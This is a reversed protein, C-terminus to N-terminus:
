VPGYSSFLSRRPPCVAGKAVGLWGGSQTTGHLVGAVVQGLHQLGAAVPLVVPQKVRAGIRLVGLDGARRHQSVLAAADAELFQPSRLKPKPNTPSATAATRNLWAEIKPRRCAAAGGKNKEVRWRSERMQMKQMVLMYWSALLM